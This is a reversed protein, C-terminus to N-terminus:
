EAQYLNVACGFLLNFICVLGALVSFFNPLMSIVYRDDDVDMDSDADWRKDGDEQDEDVQFKCM